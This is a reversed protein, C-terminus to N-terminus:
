IKVLLDNLILVSDTTHEEKLSQKLQEFTIFNCEAKITIQQNTIIELDSYIDKFKPHDKFDYNGMNSAVEYKKMVELKLENISELQGKIEKKLSVLKKLDDVSFTSVKITDLLNNYMTLEALKM